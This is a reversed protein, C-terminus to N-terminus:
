QIFVFRSLYVNELFHAYFVVGLAGAIVFAPAVIVILKNIADFMEQVSKIYIYKFEYPFLTQDVMRSYTDIWQITRIKSKFENM